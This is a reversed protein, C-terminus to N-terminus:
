QPHWERAMRQAEAIQAPTMLRAVIARNKVAIDRDRGPPLRAAALNTYFHSKVYNQKVGDGNAYMVGLNLQAVAVGQAAALRWWKVAEVYDQPVGRGYYYIDGLTSEALPNDKAAALRYWGVATTYDRPVGHGYYYADGILAEATGLGRVIPVWTREAATGIAAEIPALRSSAANKEDGAQAAAATALLLVLAAILHTM